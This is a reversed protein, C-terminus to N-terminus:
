KLEVSRQGGGRMRPGAWCREHGLGFLLKFVLEDDLEGTQAVLAGYNGVRGGQESVEFGLELFVVVPWKSVGGPMKCRIATASRNSAFIMSTISIKSSPTSHFTETAM